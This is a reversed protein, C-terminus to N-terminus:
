SVADHNAFVDLGPEPPLPAVEVPKSPSPKLKCDLLHEKLWAKEAHLEQSAPKIELAAVTQGAVLVAWLAIAM